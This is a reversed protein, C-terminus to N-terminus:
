VIGGLRKKLYKKAYLQSDVTNYLTKSNYKRMAHTVITEFNENRKDEDLSLWYAM